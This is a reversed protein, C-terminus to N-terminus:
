SASNFIGRTVGAGLMIVEIEETIEEQRLINRRLTLEEVRTDLRSLADNMQQLRRSNEAMLSDYLIGHLAAFLYQEALQPLLHRVGVNLLPPYGTPSPRHTTVRFPSFEDTIVQRHESSHYLTTLTRSGESGSGREDIDSFAAMLRTLTAEVDEAISAGELTIVPGLGAPLRDWLRRGVAIIPEPKGQTKAMMSQLAQILPENFDGCFGRESGVVLHVTHDAPAVFEPYFNLLDAAATEISAAAQRQTVVFRSLKQVEAMALNKMARMIDRIDGFSGLRRDIDRRSSM